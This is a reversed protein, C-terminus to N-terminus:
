TKLPSAARRKGESSRTVPDQRWEPVAQTQQHQQFLRNLHVMDAMAVQWLTRLTLRRMQVSIERCAAGSKTRAPVSGSAIVPSWALMKQEDNVHTLHWGLM